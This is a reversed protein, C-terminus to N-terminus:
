WISVRKEPPLFMKDGEKVGFAAYFPEQNMVTVTGRSRDPSHPDSKIWMIAQSDRTKGRWIQSFGLYFRQDGTLGDLLPAPKGELSIQYAKYAVALGSNDAINEGLTLEGNIPYGPVPSYGSYESVLSQTKAKFHDLDAQTFWGPPTLLNGSGDYQSGQDDFGHSIEHGIVAGIGGYNVADDAKANFFPPQLIAAPFVIENLEPNYYANVTPATMGWEARDIPGGLKNVNRQYEFTNARMVNGVLDDKAFSLKSYDRPKDPYGIKTTFHALKDHAKQKTEPSMWDLKDIDAKYAALMNKVLADMRAKSEPPFYKAVYIKGLGEGIAGDVLEVGRKWREENQKVGRLAAKNFNFDEDVFNKSLYPAFSSLVHWHFYAKWVPLPTQGLLRNFATIYSPQSIVLDDIKGQVGSDALYAKWNYGPALTALKSFEVKNYTKIPDRNEVKTWQIKALATELAMIDHAQQAANKEGALTLMKQIHEGYSSRTQKLQADDLLYYDRDPMGLGDQGLDFVYRTADKADQHVQPTYPATVGIVNLHAILSAIESRDKLADIRAFEPTLPKLGLPELSSEDMFSAYLDAIKQQDPDSADPSKQVGDVVDRLQKQVDDYIKSFQDYSGKDAPIEFSALWKGNIHQYIDDQVRVSEDVYQTDLGSVLPAAASTAQPAGSQGCGAIFCCGAISLAWRNMHARRYKKNAASLAAIM